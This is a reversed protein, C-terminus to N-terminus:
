RGVIMGAGRRELRLTQRVGGSEGGDRATVIRADREGLPREEGSKEGRDREAQESRSQRKM